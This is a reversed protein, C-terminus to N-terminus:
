TEIHRIKIIKSRIFTEIFVIEDIIMSVRDPRIMYYENEKMPNLDNLM